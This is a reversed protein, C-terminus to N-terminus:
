KVNVQMLQMRQIAQWDWDIGLGPESSPILAGNEVRTPTRLVPALQPIYEIWRGNPVAASL